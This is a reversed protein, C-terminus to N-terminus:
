IGQLLPYMIVSTAYTGMPTKQFAKEFQWALFKLLFEILKLKHGGPRAIPSENVNSFGLTSFLFCICGIHIHMQLPYFDVFESHSMKMSALM